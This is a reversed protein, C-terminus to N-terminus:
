AEKGLAKSIAAAIQKEAAEAASAKRADFEARAADARRRYEGKIGNLAQVLRDAAEENAFMAIIREHPCQRGYVGHARAYSVMKPTVKEIFAYGFRAWSYHDSERIVAWVGSQLGDPALGTPARDADASSLPNRTAGDM